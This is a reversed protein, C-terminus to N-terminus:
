LVLISNPRVNVLVALMLGYLLLAWIPMRRLSDAQWMAVAILLVNPIDYLGDRSAYVFAPSLAVGGAALLGALREGTLTHIWRYSVLVLAVGSGAIVAQMTWLSDPLVAFFPAMIVSVGPPYITSEPLRGSALRGADALRDYSDPVWAVM